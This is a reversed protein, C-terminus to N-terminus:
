LHFKEGKAYKRLVKAPCGAVITYSEVDKTVVAGAGIVAYKGIRINPLINVGLGVYVSNDLVVNGGFNCGGSIHCRKGIRCGHSITCNGNISTSRGIKVDSTITCNAGITAGRDISPRDYFCVTPHILPLTFDETQREFHEKLAPDGVGCVFVLGEEKPIKKFVPLGYMETTIGTEDIFGFVEVKCAKAIGFVEQAHGGAGFIILKM